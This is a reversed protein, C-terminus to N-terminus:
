NVDFTNAQLLSLFTCLYREGLTIRIGLLQLCNFKISLILVIKCYLSMASTAVFM